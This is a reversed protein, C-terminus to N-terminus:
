ATFFFPSLKSVLRFNQPDRDVRYKNPNEQRIKSLKLRQMKKKEEKREHEFQEMQVKLIIEEMSDGGLTEKIPTSGLMAASIAAQKKVAKRPAIWTQVADYGSYKKALNSIKRSEAEKRKLEEVQEESVIFQDFLTGKEALLTRRTTLFEKGGVNLTIWFSHEVSGLRINKFTSHGKLLLDLGKIALPLAALVFNM